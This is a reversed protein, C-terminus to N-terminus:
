WFLFKANIKMITKFNLQYLWFCKAFILGFHRVFVVKHLLDFTGCPKVDNPGIESGLFQMKRRKRFVRNKLFILSVRATISFLIYFWIYVSSWFSRDAENIVNWAMQNHSVYGINVGNGVRAEERWIKIPNDLWVNALSFSASSMIKMNHHTNATNFTRLEQTILM